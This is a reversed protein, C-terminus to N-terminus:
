QRPGACAQETGICVNDGADWKTCSCSVGVVGDKCYLCHAKGNTSACYDDFKATGLGVSSCAPVPEDPNSGCHFAGGGDEEYHYVCCYPEGPPCAADAADVGADETTGGADKSSCGSILGTSALSLAFFHCLVFRQSQAM